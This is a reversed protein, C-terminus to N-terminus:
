VCITMGQATEDQTSLVVIIDVDTLGSNVAVEVMLSGDGEVTSYETATLGVTVAPVSLGSRTFTRVIIVICDPGVAIYMYNLLFM